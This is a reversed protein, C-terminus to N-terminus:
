WLFDKHFNLSTALYQVRIGHNRNHIDVVDQFTEEDSRRRYFRRAFRQGYVLSNLCSISDPDDAYCGCIQLSGSDCAKSVAIALSASTLAVLFSQEKNGAFLSLYSGFLKAKLLLLGQIKILKKHKFIWLLFLSQNNQKSLFMWRYRKLDSISVRWADGCELAMGSGRAADSIPSLM